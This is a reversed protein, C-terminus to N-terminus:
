MKTSAQLSNAMWLFFFNSMGVNLNPTITINGAGVTFFGSTLYPTVSPNLRYSFIYNDLFHATELNQAKAPMTLLGFIAALYLSLRYKKM